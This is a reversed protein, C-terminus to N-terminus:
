GYKELFDKFLLYKEKAKGSDICYAAVEVGEKLDKVKGMIYFCASANALVISRPPGKKGDLVEKIVRASDAPTKVEIDKLKIKKLGFNSPTLEFKRIRGKSLFVVKTKGTLTIEDKLDDGYVVFAAKTNLKNLAGAILPLLKESSIGLLQHTVFAPNCLPGILNFITRIGLEKRIPAVRKFVKHYLPAFLFGIGIKKICREMIRPECDIKIGLAELVDASGCNSSVARNGHKAVKVGASSVVFAVTTSINFKYTGSGGTGCTDLVPEGEIEIGLGNEKLNVRLAKERVVSAAAAIEDSSEGLMSLVALFGAIQADTAKSEFVEYFVEKAESFGLHKGSLIKKIAEKIM